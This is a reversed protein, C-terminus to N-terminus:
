RIVICVHTKRLNFELANLQLVFRQYNVAIMPFAVLGIRTADALNPAPIHTGGVRSPLNM